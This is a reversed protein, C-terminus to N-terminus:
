QQGYLWRWLPHSSGQQRIRCLLQHQQLQESKPRGFLINRSQWILVSLTMGVCIVLGMASLRHYLVVARVSSWTFHDQWLGFYKRIGWLSAAGITAWLGAVVAWRGLVTLAQLRDLDTAFAPDLPQPPAAPDFPKTM